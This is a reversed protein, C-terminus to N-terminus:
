DEFYRLTRPDDRLRKLANHVRSKVTGLPISLATAIEELDLDDVFRLLLVERQEVPLTALVEALEARTGELDPTQPPALLADSDLEGVPLVKRRRRNAAISLNKVVPYLFTTFKASLEFGPFKRAVYTFTEQVVDLADDRSRTFRLALAAAWDRHRRYLVEFAGGDGRNIAAVLEPDSRPDRADPMTKNKDAQTMFVVSNVLYGPSSLMM